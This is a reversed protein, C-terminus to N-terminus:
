MGKELTCQRKASEAGALEGAFGLGTARELLRQALWQGLREAATPDAGQHALHIVYPHTEATVAFCRELQGAALWPAVALCPSLAIGLGHAASELM